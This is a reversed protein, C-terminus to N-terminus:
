KNHNSNSTSLGSQINRLMKLLFPRDYAFAKVGFKIKNTLSYDPQNRYYNVGNHNKYDIYDKTTFLNGFQYESPIYHATLSKRSFQRDSTPLAGHVTKSNWFLVDGKKLDPATIDNQNAKFYAGIKQLWEVHSLNPTDSHFDPHQISKPMVYFRGARQDIDELAIWAATLNGNPVTDLYWWDQHPQTETNADFLMTQMLNFKHSGTIQALAAQISDGCYIEKALNSFESYRQYDHIDLFSQEVHGFENLRNLEYKNTSQRFFPYKSPIIEQQYLSLLRDIAAVPILNRFVAYGNEQYYEHSVQRHEIKSLNSELTM